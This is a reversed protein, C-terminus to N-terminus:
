RTEPLGEKKWLDFGGELNILNTYGLGYLFSLLYVSREGHECYIVAKKTHPLEDKREKIQSMPLWHSGPIYGRSREWDERIDIFLTQRELEERAEGPKMNKVAM